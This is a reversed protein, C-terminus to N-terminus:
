ATPSPGADKEYGRWSTRFIVIAASICILPLLWHNASLSFFICVIWVGFLLQLYEGMTMDRSYLLAHLLLLLSPGSLIMWLYDIAQHQILVIGRLAWCEPILLVWYLAFLSALITTSTLPLTRYISLETEMFHFNRYVLVSHGILSTILLLWLMRDEFVTSDIGSFFYLATFSLLKVILLSVFQRNFVFRLLFGFLNNFLRFSSRRRKIQQIGKAKKLLILSCFAALLDLAIVVLVTAIPGGPLHERIGVVILLLSYMAAPLLLISNVRLLHKFRKAGPLENMLFIFDYSEKKLLQYIFHVTKFVYLLWVLLAVLCFLGDTLISHALAYHFRLADAFSPHIGFLLLFLFLFLGAHRQYFSQSISRYLIQDISNHM